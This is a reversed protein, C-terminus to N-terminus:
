REIVYWLTKYQPGVALRWGDDTRSVSVPSSKEGRTDLAWARPASRGPLIIEAPVGQAVVPASGWKRGVTKREEDWGMNSNEVRTALSLVLKASEVIPRSDVSALAACVWTGAPMDVKLRVDGLEVDEGAIWGVACRVAPATVTFRPADGSAQWIIHSTAIQAAGDPASPLQPVVPESGVDTFEVEYRNGLVARLPLVDTPLWNRPGPWATALDKGMHEVPLGVRVPGPGPPVAGRRFVLAAIPAFVLQASHQALSFYSSIKGVTLNETRNGYCFQYVGDWDQHAAFASVMPFLEAAHDNPAPHNYESVTYPMGRLRYHALRALTGGDAAAVMSTNPINWNAGDWPKGPFRPHQWYAHMDISGCLTAERLLGWYGGYSAQTDVVLSEVGLKATLHRRLRKVYARETDVLFRRFSRVAAPPWGAGPFDLEALSRADGPHFLERGPRLSPSTVEVMGVAAGMNVSLRVPIDEVVGQVQVPLVVDQWKPMLRFSRRGSVFTWPAKAFRLGVSVDRAPDSRARFRVTYGTGNAVPVDLQHLQYAWSVKGEEQMTVRIAQSGGDEGAVAFDCVGPKRGELIWHELGQAFDHNRLLEGGLPVVGENWAATVAELSQYTRTLWGRWKALLPSRFPEVLARAEGPSLRLMTNENNLEVFAIAPDHALSLGTYPNTRVLLDTAYKEQLEIYPDHFKDLVKGYRYARPLDLERLGPYTRSVHLNINTYIGNRKLQHIFWDLRDLKAPDLEKQGPLWIDRADMHHFRVVNFGLQALRRAIATAHEKEPFCASFTVNTGLFRVRNGQPDVFRGDRISIRGQTGPTNLFSLDVPSAKPNDMPLMVFPFWGPTDVSVQAQAQEAPLLLGAGVGILAVFLSVGGGQERM